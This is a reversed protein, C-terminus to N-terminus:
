LLLLLVMQSRNKLNYKELIVSIKNKVTGTSLFLQKAISANDYGQLVLNAIEIEENKPTILESRDHLTKAFFSMAESEKHLISHAFHNIYVNGKAVAEVCALIEEESSLNSLFGRAGVSIFELVSFNKYSQSVIVSPFSVCIKKMETYVLSTEACYLMVAERSVSSFDEANEICLTRIGNNELTLRLGSKVISSHGFLVVSVDCYM